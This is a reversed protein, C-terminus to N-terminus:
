RKEQTTCGSMTLRSSFISSISWLTLFFNNLSVLLELVDENVSPSFILLLALSNFSFSIRSSAQSTISLLSSKLTFSFSLFTLSSVITFATLPLRFVSVLDFVFDGFVPEMTKDPKFYMKYEEDQLGEEKIYAYLKKVVQGRTLKEGKETGIIKALAPSIELPAHIGKTKVAPM